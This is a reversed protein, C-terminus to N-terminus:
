YAAGIPLLYCKDIKEDYVGVYYDSSQTKARSENHFSSAQYKIGKYSAKLIRKRTIAPFNSDLQPERSITRQEYLDFKM